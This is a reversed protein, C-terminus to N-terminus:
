SFISNLIKLILIPRACFALPAELWRAHLDFHAAWIYTFGKVAESCEKKKEKNKLADIMKKKLKKKIIKILITM